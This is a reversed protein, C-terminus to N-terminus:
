AKTEWAGAWWTAQFFVWHCYALVCVWGERIHVSVCMCPVTRLYLEYLHCLGKFTFSYVGYLFVSFYLGCTFSIGPLHSLRNGWKRPESSHRNLFCLSRTRPPVTIWKNTFCRMILNWKGIFGLSKSGLCEIVATGWYWLLTKKKKENKKSLKPDDDKNGLTYFM